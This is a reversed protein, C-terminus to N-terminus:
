SAFHFVFLKPRFDELMNPKVVLPFPVPDRGRPSRSTAFRLDPSDIFKFFNDIDWIGESVWDQLRELLRQPSLCDRLCNSAWLLQFGLDHSVFPRSYLRRLFPLETEAHVTAKSLLVWPPLRAVSRSWAVRLITKELTLFFVTEGFVVLTKSRGSIM